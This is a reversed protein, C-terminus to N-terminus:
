DYDINNFIGIQTNDFFVFSNCNSFDIKKDIKWFGNKWYVEADYFKTKKFFLFHLYPLRINKPNLLESNKLNYLWREGNNPLISTYFEKLYHKSFSNFVYNFIRFFNYYKIKLPKGIYRYARWINKTAPYILVTFDHEDLGYVYNDKLKDKWNNIQLCLNTYRSEKRIVTFHGAVRDAHTTILDFKKLRNRTLLISLQGYCLDLDGFAWHTYEKLLSNHIVGYFPKLDCLKYPGQPNFEINLKNSVYNCYETFSMKYFIVNSYKSICDNDTFIIWDIIIDDLLIHNRFCSFLFLDMWEPFKGFYPIIVAIRYKM